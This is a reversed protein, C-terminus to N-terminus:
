VATLGLLHDENGGAVALFGFHVDDHLQWSGIELLAV